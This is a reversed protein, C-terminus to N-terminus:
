ATAAGSHSLGLRTSTVLPEKCEACTAGRARLQAICVYCYVHGCQARYPMCPAASDCAACGEASAAASRAGEASASEEASAADYGAIRRAGNWAARAARAGGRGAASLAGWPVLPAVELMLAGVSRWVLQQNLMQFSPEVADNRLDRAVRVRLMRQVLTGYGGGRGSLLAIFNVFSAAGWAVRVRRVAVWVRVQWPTMEGAAPPAAAATTAESASAAALAADSSAVGAPARDDWGNSLMHRRLRALAWQAIIAAAFGCKQARSPAARRASRADHFRLGLLRQGPTPREAAVTFAFIALRLAAEVEPMLRQLLNPAVRNLMAGCQVRLIHLLEDDLLGADLQTARPFFPRPTGDVAAALEAAAADIDARHRM